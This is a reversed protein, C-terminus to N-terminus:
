CMATDVPNLLTGKITEALDLILSLLHAKLEAGLETQKKNFEEWQERFIKNAGELFQENWSQQPAVSTKHNGDKRIFARMTSWAWQKKVNVHNVASSILESQADALPRINIEEVTEMLKDHYALMFRRVEDQPARVAELLKESGEISHAKAWMALGKMFVTFKHNIYDEMTQLIVPSASELIYSRLGPVGTMKASLRPGNIVRAGKLADYHLNSVCFVELTEGHALHGDKEIQLRRITNSNRADVLLEFREQAVGPLDEEASKQEAELQAIKMNFNIKAKETLPKQKKSGRRKGRGDLKMERTKINKPLRKLLKRLHKERGLLTWHDGISQGESELHTALGPDINEDTGTCIVVMKFSRGYRMLLYDVTTDTIARAIKTVVWITDCSRMTDYSTNVRIQNTDDLGPLDVLVIYELIRPGEIGIRVKRVLPWLAPAEFRSTGSVLPNLQALLENQTDADLYEIHDDEDAEKEELLEECWEGFSALADEGSGHYSDRLFDEAARPSEFEIRDCFLSRFTTFATLMLRKLEQKEDESWDEQQEFTWSNYDKILRDLLEMIAEIDFYEVKAALKKTQGQFPREYETGIYTCSQGGAM